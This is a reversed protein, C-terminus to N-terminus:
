CGGYPAEASSAKNSVTSAIATHGATTSLREGATSDAFREDAPLVESVFALEIGLEALQPLAQELYQITEPYPHGIAVAMGQEHVKALLFQFREDIAEASRVNDLFVERSLHPVSFEGAVLAAVTKDSTRSDVFYLDRSRLEQMLWAMQPRRQTLDSGMHNNVGQAHPVALLADALVARFEDRPLERHLGGKGLPQEGLTEMPAHLMVEKGAAHAQADLQRSFPTYPIIALTLKGPLAMARQDRRLNNGLDDIIIVLQKKTSPEGRHPVLEARPCDLPSLDISNAWGPWLCCLLTLLLATCHCAHKDPNGPVTM